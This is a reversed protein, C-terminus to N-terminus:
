KSDLSIVFEINRKNCTLTKVVFIKKNKKSELAFARKGKFGECGGGEYGQSLQHM